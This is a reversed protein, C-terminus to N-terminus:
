FEGRLPLPSPLEYSFKKTSASANKLSQAWNMAMRSASFGPTM